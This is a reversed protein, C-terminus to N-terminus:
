ILNKGSKIENVNYIVTFLFDKYQSLDEGWVNVDKM